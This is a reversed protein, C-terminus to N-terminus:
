ACAGVAPAEKEPGPVEVGNVLITRPALRFEYGESYGNTMMTSMRTNCYYEAFSQWSYGVGERCEVKQGQLHAILAEKFTMTM